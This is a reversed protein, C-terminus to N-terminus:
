RAAWRARVLVWAGIIMSVAWGLPTVFFEAARLSYEGTFHVLLAAKALCASLNLSVVLLALAVPLLRFWFRVRRAREVKELIQAVFPGAELPARSEAFRRALERDFEDSM